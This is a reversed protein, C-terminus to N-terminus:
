SKPKLKEYIWIAGTVLPVVILNLNRSPSHLVNDMSIKILTVQREKVAEFNFNTLFLYLSLKKVSHRQIFKFKDYEPDTRTTEYLDSAFKIEPVSTLCKSPM